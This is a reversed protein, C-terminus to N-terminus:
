AYESLNRYSKLALVEMALRYADEYRSRVAGDNAYSLVDASGSRSVAKKIYENEISSICRMMEDRDPEMNIVMCRSKVTPAIRDLESVALIFMETKEPEEVRKLLLNFSVQNLKEADDILVYHRDDGYPMINLEDFLNRVQEAPISKKGDEAKLIHINSENNVRSKVVDLALTYKGIGKSGNLILSANGSDMIRNLMGRYKDLGAM